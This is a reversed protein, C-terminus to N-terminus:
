GDHGTEGFLANWVRTPRGQEDRVACGSNYDYVAWSWGHRRAADHVAELYAAASADDARQYVGFEALYLERGWAFGRAAEAFEDLREALKAVTWETGSTARDPDTEPVGVGLDPVVGPFRVLPRNEAFQRTFDTPENFEFGLALNWDNAIRDSDMVEALTDINMGRSTLYVVRTPNSERIAALLAENYRQMAAADPAQPRHLLEFRLGNGEPAFRRAVLWWVYEHDYFTELDSFPSSRDAPPPEGLVGHHYGPLSFMTLVVGLGHRHALRLFEDFPAIREAVLDGDPGIWLDGAVRVRVHDFGHDAIWAVDEASMWPAAYPADPLYNASLWHALNVGRRFTFTRAETVARPAVEPAPDSAFCYFRGSSGTRQISQADCGRSPHAATWSRRWRPFRNGRDLFRDHHGMMAHGDGRSTWNACTAPHGYAYALRGDPDSGTLMDHVSRPVASGTEDLATRRDIRERGGFLDDLNPAIQEGRANFWPGPGIRDRADVGPQDGAPATSLYARWERDGAGVAAALKRCHRDAGTLGGLDGSGDVGVSTVFFSLRPTAPGCDPSVGALPSATPEAAHSLRPTFLVLALLVLGRPTPTLTM